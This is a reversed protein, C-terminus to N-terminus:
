TQLDNTGFRLEFTLGGTVGYKGLQGSGAFSEVAAGNGRVQLALHGFLVKFGQALPLSGAQGMQLLGLAETDVEGLVASLM